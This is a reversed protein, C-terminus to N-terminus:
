TEGNSNVAGCPTGIGSKRRGASLGGPPGGTYQRGHGQRGGNKGIAGGGPRRQNGPQTDAIPPVDLSSDLLQRQGTGGLPRPAARRQHAVHRRCGLAEAEAAEGGIVHQLKEGEDMGAAEAQRRHPAQGGGEIQRRGGPRGVLGRRQRRGRAPQQGIQGFGPPAAVRGRGADRAGHRRAAPDPAGRHQRCQALAVHRRAGAGHGPELHPPAQRFPGFARGLRRGAVDRHGDGLRARTEGVKEAVVGLRPRLLGVVRRRQRGRELRALHGARRM